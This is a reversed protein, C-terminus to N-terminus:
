SGGSLRSRIPPSSIMANQRTLPQLTARQGPYQTPIGTDSDDSLILISAARKRAPTKSPRIPAVPSLHRSSHMPPYGGPIPLTDNKSMGFTPDQDQKKKQRAATKSRLPSNVLNSVPALPQIRKDVRRQKPSARVKPSPVFLPKRKWPKAVPSSISLISLEAVLNEKKNPKPRPKMPSEKQETNKTAVTLKRTRTRVPSTVCVSSSSGESPPSTPIDIWQTERSPTYLRSSPVIATSRRGYTNVKRTQQM